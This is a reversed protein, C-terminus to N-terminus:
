KFSAEVALPSEPTLCRSVSNVGTGERWQIRQARFSHHTLNGAIADWRTLPRM